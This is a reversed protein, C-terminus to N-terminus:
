VWAGAGLVPVDVRRVEESLLLQAGDVCVCVGGVRMLRPQGAVENGHEDGEVRGAGLKSGCLEQGACCRGCDEQAVLLDCVM